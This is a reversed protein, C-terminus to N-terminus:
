GLTRWTTGFTGFHWYIRETTCNLLTSICYSAVTMVCLRCGKLSFGGRDGFPSLPAFGQPVVGMGRLARREHTRYRPSGASGVPLSRETRPEWPINAPDAGGGECRAPPERLPPHRTSTRILAKNNQNKGASPPSLIHYAKGRGGGTSRVSDINYAPRPNTLRKGPFLEVFFPGRRDDRKSHTGTM